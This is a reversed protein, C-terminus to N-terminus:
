SKAYVVDPFYETICCSEGSPNEYLNSQDAHLCQSALAVMLIAIGDGESEQAAVELMAGDGEDGCVWSFCRWHM